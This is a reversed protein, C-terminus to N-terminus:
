KVKNKRERVNFNLSYSNNRHNDYVVEIYRYDLSVKLGGDVEGGGVGCGRGGQPVMPLFPFKICTELLLSDMGALTAADQSVNGM